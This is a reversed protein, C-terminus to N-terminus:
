WQEISEHIELYDDSDIDMIQQVEHNSLKHTVQWKEQQLILKQEEGKTLPVSNLYNQPRLPFALM